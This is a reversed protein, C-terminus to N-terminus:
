MKEFIETKRNFAVSSFTSFRAIKIDLSNENSLLRTLSIAKSVNASVRRNATLDIVGEHDFSSM